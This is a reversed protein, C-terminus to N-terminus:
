TRVKDCNGSWVGAPTSFHGLRELALANEAENGVKRRKNGVGSETVDVEIKYGKANWITEGSM